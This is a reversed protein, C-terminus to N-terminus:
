FAMSDDVLIKVGPYLKNQGAVVVRDGATIGSLIASRGERTEGVRVIRAEAGLGGQPHAVVVWVADGQLSYTVATEPVTVAPLAEGLELRLNAFMGPLLGEHDLMRARLLINRTGADVASDLAQLEAAFARDPWADVRVSARQGPALKPVHRAPVTFDVELAEGDQLSAIVTGPEVYDGLAVHRIGLTGDFPAHIRKNRIRAETEALEAEARGLDAKTTDFQSQAISKQGILRLDREHLLRALGLTAQQRKRAAQEVDDNLVVLLQGKQVRQGSDFSIATIQGSTEASLEVGLVARLTGVSDLRSTWSESQANAAALTVPP